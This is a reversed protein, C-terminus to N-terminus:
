LSIRAGDQRIWVTRPHAQQDAGDAPTESMALVISRLVDDAGLEGGPARVLESALKAVTHRVKPSHLTALTDDLCRELREVPDGPLRGAHRLAYQVEPRDAAIHTTPAGLAIMEGAPVSLALRIREEAQDRDTSARAAGLDVPRHLSVAPVDRGHLWSLTAHAARGHAIARANM